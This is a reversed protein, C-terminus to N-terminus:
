QSYNKIRHYPKEKQYNYKLCCCVILTILHNEFFSPTPLSAGFEEFNMLSMILHVRPTLPLSPKAKYFLSESGGGM